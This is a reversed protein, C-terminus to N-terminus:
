IFCIAADISRKPKLLGTSIASAMISIADGAMGCGLEKKGGRRRCEGL